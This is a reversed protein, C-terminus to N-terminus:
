KRLKDFLEFFTPFTVAAASVDDIVIEKESAASIVAMAMIIRHDSYGMVSGGNVKGKGHIILGDPLEENEVGLRRLNESMCKIRDTEKIRAQPVNAIIVDEQSFAAVSALIPLADPMSNLDFTGGKIEKPGTITVSNGNWTVSAGMSLFIDLIKKDGQPDNRCLGNVTITSKSIMASGFFFSASSFDGNIYEDFGHYRQGGKVRAKELDESIEFEINQKRLWELTMEVYPKEYLLSCEIISEDKGLPTGLLLGSLYQSTKCEIVTKGGLLPGSLTIPPLGKNAEVVSGLERLSEVLPGVPRKLLQSDGTIRFKSNLSLLMPMLLLETTGSNGSDIEIFPDLNKGFDTADVKIDKRGSDEIYEVKAGLREIASLASKTDESFLPNRIVSHEKSFAAILLARITQSKSAPINVSGSCKKSELVKM